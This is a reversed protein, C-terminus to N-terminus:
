IIGEAKLLKQRIAYRWNKDTNEDYAQRFTKGDKYEENGHKALMDETSIDFKKGTGGGGTRAKTATKTLRVSPAQEGFDYTFWIGDAKDLQGSTILPEVAATIADKIGEEMAKLAERKADLEAKEAAKDFQDIKRLIPIAAKYDHSAMLAEMQAVLEERTPEPTPQEQAVPEEAVDKKQKGNAMIVGGKTHKNLHQATVVALM